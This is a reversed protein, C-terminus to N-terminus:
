SETDGDYAQAAPALQAFLADTDIEAGTDGVTCTFPIWGWSPHEIECDIAGFATFKANRVQM